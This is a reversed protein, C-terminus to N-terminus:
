AFNQQYALKPHHFLMQVTQETLRGMFRMIKKTIQKENRPPIGSCMDQKLIQNLYEDPNIEPSYSPFYFVEIEEKHEALWALVLKGHHVKLNDLFFFIKDKKKDKILASMFEILKQQTTSEEYLKFKHHGSPSVASMMNVRKRSVEVKVVPTQGKPAYGRPNYAQNNIGTEDGFYIEANEQKARKKIAPYVEDKFTKVAKEDQKYAQKSPRQSSMGWSLLYERVTEKGLEIGYKQKILERVINGTWLYCSLKMQDPDKDIIIDKIEKEQEPSLLKKEGVKRGRKKPKPVKGTKKYEGLIFQIRSRSLGLLEHTKDMTLGKKHFSVVQRWLLCHAKYDLTKLNIKEENKM